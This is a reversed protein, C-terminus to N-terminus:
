HRICTYGQSLVYSQILRICNQLAYERLTSCSLSISVAPYDVDLTKIALCCLKFIRLLQARSQFSFDQMFYEISDSIHSASQGSSQHQGRKEIVYSGFKDVAGNM